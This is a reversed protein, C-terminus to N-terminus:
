QMIQDTADGMRRKSQTGIKKRCVQLIGKISYVYNELNSKAKSAKIPEEDQVKYKVAEDVMRDVEEM